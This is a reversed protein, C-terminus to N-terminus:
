KAQLLKTAAAVIHRSSIGAANMLEEPKGSTPLGKVALHAIHAPPEAALAEMVAAGLGGEPY